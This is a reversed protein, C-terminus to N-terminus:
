GGATGGLQHGPGVIGAAVQRHRELTSPLENVRLSINRKFPSSEAIKPFNRFSSQREMIDVPAHPRKVAFPNDTPKLPVPELISFM